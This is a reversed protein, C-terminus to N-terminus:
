RMKNRGFSILAFGSERDIELLTSYNFPWNQLPMELMMRMRFLQLAPDHTCKTSLSDPPLELERWHLALGFGCDLRCTSVTSAAIGLQFVVVILM